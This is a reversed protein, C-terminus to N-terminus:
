EGVGREALGSRSQTRFVHDWHWPLYGLYGEALSRVRLPKDLGLARRDDTGLLESVLVAGDRGVTVLGRDFV